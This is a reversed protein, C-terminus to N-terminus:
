GQQILFFLSGACVIMFGGMILYFYSTLYNMKGPTTEFYRSMGGAIRAVVEAMGAVETAAFGRLLVALGSKEDFRTRYPLVILALSPFCIPYATPPPSLPLVVRHHPLLRTREM